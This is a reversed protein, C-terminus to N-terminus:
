ALMDYIFKQQNMSIKESFNKIHAKGNNILDNRLESNHALEVMKHALLEPESTDVFVGGSGAAEEVATHEHCIVPIGIALAEVAPIGFGESLSPYILAQANSYAACLENSSVNEPFFCYNELNMELVTKRFKNKMNGEGIFVVPMRDSLKTTKLAKLISLQNKRLNFSGVSIFYASPLGYKAQFLTKSKSDVDQYFQPACNQYIVTIKKPDANYWRILESKTKQSIAIIHSSHHVAYKTKLHYINRDILSYDNKRNHFIVDHITVLAKIARKNKFYPIEGSLGHFIKGPPIYEGLGFIRKIGLPNPYEIRKIGNLEFEVQWPSFKYGPKLLNISDEPHHEHYSKILWRAYNGLGTSNYFLRKADFFIEM